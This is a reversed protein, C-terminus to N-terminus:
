RPLINKYELMSLLQKKLKINGFNVTLVGFKNKEKYTGIKRSPTVTIKYFQKHKIHLEKCWFNLAKKPDTDSFIQLWFKIKKNNVQCIKILFELFKKILRPDSNSLRVGSTSRKSGEGWYLGLGLGLLEIEEKNLNKKFHFPDGNPNYKLYIAESISRKTIKLKKLWYNIKNESYGLKGAIQRSSLGNKYLISIKEKDKNTLTKKQEIKINKTKRELYRYLSNSSCGLKILTSRKKKYDSSSYFAPKM